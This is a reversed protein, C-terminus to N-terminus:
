EAQKAGSGKAEIFALVSEAMQLQGHAMARADQMPFGAAIRRDDDAIIRSFINISKIMLAKLEDLEGM